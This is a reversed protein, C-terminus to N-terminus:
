SRRSSRRRSRAGRRRGPRHGPSGRPRSTSAPTRRPRAPLRFESQMVRLGMAEDLYPVLDELREVLPHLSCDILPPGSMRPRRGARARARRRRRGRGPVRGDAQPHDDGIARGTELDFEWRHWPCALILQEHSVVFEHPRSPAMTTDTLLGACLDAGQHPCRNNVAYFGRATRM